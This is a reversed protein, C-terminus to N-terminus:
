WHYITSRFDCFPEYSSGSASNVAVRTCAHANALLAAGFDPHVVCPALWKAVLLVSYVEGSADRHEGVGNRGGEGGISCTRAM